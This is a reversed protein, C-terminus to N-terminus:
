NGAKAKCDSIGPMLIAVPYVATPRGGAYSSVPLRVSATHVLAATCMIEAARTGRAMMHYPALRVALGQERVVPGKDGSRSSNVRNEYSQAITELSQLIACAFTLDGVGVVVVVFDLISTITWLSCRVSCM